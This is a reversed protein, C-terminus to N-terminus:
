VHTDGKANNCQQALGGFGPMRMRAQDSSESSETM